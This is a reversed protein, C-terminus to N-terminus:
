HEDEALLLEVGRMATSLRGVANLRPALTFGVRGANLARGELGSARVLARLGVNDTEALMRLGYRVLVRNEGRLPALDAVTAVAVLDLRRLVANENGGLAEVLAQVLKFVVGVAALDKDPYPCGPRKPNLVALCDPLPGGPLHHDTVIVDIGDGTLAAIPERASTGCDCTVVVRAGAARAAAVGAGSLDYGDEIRRPIFPVVVGGLERISRTLLTTSCIGDVDYDGHVLIVERARIAAALRAVAADLGLMLSPSHLQDLRPRLFRKATEPDALGRAALLRCAALPLRLEHELLAVAAPDPPPPLIWRTPPRVHAAATVTPFSGRM